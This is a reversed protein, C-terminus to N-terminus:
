DPYHSRSKLGPCRSWWMMRLQCQHPAALLCGGEARNEDRNRTKEGSHLLTDNTMEQITISSQNSQADTSTNTMPQKPAKDVVADKMSIIIIIIGTYVNERHM